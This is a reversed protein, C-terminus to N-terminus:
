VRVDGLVFVCDEDESWPCAILELAFRPPEAEPSVEARAPPEVFVAVGGALAADPVPVCSECADEDSRGCAPAEPVSRVRASAPLADDECGCASRALLTMPAFTSFGLPSFRPSMLSM